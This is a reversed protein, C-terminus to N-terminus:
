QSEVEQFIFVPCIYDIFIYCIGRCSPNQGGRLTIDTTKRMLQRFAVSAEEPSQIKRVPQFIVWSVYICM